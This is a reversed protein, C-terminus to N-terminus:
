TTSASQVAWHTTASCIPRSSGTKGTSNSETGAMCQAFQITLETGGGPRDIVHAETSYRRGAKMLSPAKLWGIHDLGLLSLRKFNKEYAAHQAEIIKEAGAQDFLEDYAKDGAISAAERERQQNARAIERTAASRTSVASAFSTLNTASVPKRLM